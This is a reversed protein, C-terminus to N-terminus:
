KLFTNLAALFAEPQEAYVWHGAGAVGRMRTLPFRQRIASEYDPSLYNSNGGYIFLTEGPYAVSDAADPFAVIQAMGDAIAHLNMRWRWRGAESILNQLLYQRLAKDDLFQALVQDAQQRSELKPLDVAQLATIITDFRHSYTVPAIDVVVLKQLWEPNHMALWMAVKGGMSHGILMIADLGQDDVLESIDGAMAPYSINDSHPSNGHNRLDPVLIHFAGELARVIGHWNVSSGLLGHLFMLSPRGERYVGYERCTLKM